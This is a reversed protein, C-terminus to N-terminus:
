KVSSSDVGGQSCTSFVQLQNCAMGLTPDNPSFLSFLSFTDKVNAWRPKESARLKRKQRGRGSRKTKSPISGSSDHLRLSLEYRTIIGRM